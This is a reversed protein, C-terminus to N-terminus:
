AARTESRGAKEPPTRGWTPALNPHRLHTHVFLRGLYVGLVAFGVILPRIALDRAIALVSGDMQPLELRCYSYIQWVTLALCPAVVLLLALVTHRTKVAIFFLPAVVALWELASVWTAGTGSLGLMRAMEWMAACSVAVAVAGAVYALVWVGLGELVEAM